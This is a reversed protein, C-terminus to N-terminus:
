MLMKIASVQEATFVGKNLVIFENVAKLGAEKEAKIAAEKKATVGVGKVEVKGNCHM